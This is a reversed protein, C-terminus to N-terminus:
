QNTITEKEIQEKVADLIEKKLNPPTYREEDEIETRVDELLQKVKEYDEQERSAELFKIKPKINRLKLEPIFMDKGQKRATSIKGYIEAYEENALEIESSMDQSKKFIRKKLEVVEDLKEESSKSVAEIRKKTEGVQADDERVSNISKEPATNKTKTIEEKKEPERKEENAIPQKPKEKESFYNDIINLMEKPDKIPMIKNALEFLGFEYLIWTAYDNKDERTHFSFNILYGGEARKLESIIDGITELKRGDHCIFSHTAKSEKNTEVM